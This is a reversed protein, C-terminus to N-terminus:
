GRKARLSLPEIVLVTGAPAKTGDVYIEADEEKTFSALPIGTESYGVFQAFIPTRAIVLFIEAQEPFQLEFREVARAEALIAQAEDFQRQASDVSVTM